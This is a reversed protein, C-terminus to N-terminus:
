PKLSSAANEANWAAGDFSLRIRGGALPEHKLQNDSCVTVRVGCLCHRRRNQKKERNECRGACWHDVAPGSRTKPHTKKQTLKDDVAISTAIKKKGNRLWCPGQALM